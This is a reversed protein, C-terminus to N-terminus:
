DLYIGCNLMIEAKSGSPKNDSDLFVKYKDDMSFMSGELRIYANDLPKYEVGLTFANGKLEPAYVGDENNIMAFRASASLSKTFAYKAALSAGFYSGDKEEGNQEIKSKEKSAIDAQAKMSFNESIDYQACINHLMHLKSHAAPAEENGMVNAYSVSLNDMIKYGLFIGFTKNDNNEEIIGNGNLIHLQATLKDGEYSIRIGSQYFPEYYTVLSHSSLWNDKPLLAEGGIHTLFYGADIWVKDFVNMGVNAQQILPTKTVGPNEFASRVLDGSQIGFNARFKEYNAAVNVMAINLGIQDKKPNVYTLDRGFNLSKDNNSQMKTNEVALYADLYGSFKVKLKDDANSVNVFALAILALASIKKLM